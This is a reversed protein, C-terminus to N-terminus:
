ISRVLAVHQMQKAFEPFIESVQVGPVSTKIPDFEGQTPRGPKPDWTDLHSMGGGNWFLIVHEATARHSTGAAALLNSVRMGLFTGAAAKLMSRRTLKYGECSMSM